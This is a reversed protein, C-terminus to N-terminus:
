CAQRTGIRGVARRRQIIMALTKAMEEYNQAVDLLQRRLTEDVTASAEWRAREANALLNELTVEPEHWAATLSAPTGRNKPAADREAFVSM